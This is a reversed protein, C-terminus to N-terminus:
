SGNFLQHAVNSHIMPILVATSQASHKTALKRKIAIQLHTHHFCDPAKMPSPKRASATEKQRGM